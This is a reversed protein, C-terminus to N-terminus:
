NSERHGSSSIAVQDRRCRERLVENRMAMVETLHIPSSPAIIASRGYVMKQLSLIGMRAEEQLDRQFIVNILHNVQGHEVWFRM